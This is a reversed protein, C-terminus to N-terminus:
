KPTGVATLQRLINFYFYYPDLNSLLTSFPVLHTYNTSLLEASRFPIM